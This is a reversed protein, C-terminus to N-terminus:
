EIKTIRLEWDEGGPSDVLQYLKGNEVSYPYLKLADAEDLPLFINKLLKGSIDFVFFERKEGKERYTIVYIKKNAIVFDRITPFNKPYKILHKDRQFNERFRVDKKFFDDYRKKREETVKVPKFNHTIPSLEKLSKDFVRIDGKEGDVFLKDGCTEFIPLKIITVPNITKGATHMPRRFVEKGKKFDADHKHLTFYQTDKDQTFGLGIYGDGLPVFKALVSKTKVEKKMDGDKTYFASKAMSNALIYDPQVVIGVGGNNISPHIIFEGPGSGMKGFKKQLKFDKSFIFVAAGEVIYIKESDVKIAVPKLIGPIKVVESSLLSSVLVLMLIVFMFKLRRM